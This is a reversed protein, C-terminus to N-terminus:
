RPAVPICDALHRCADEAGAKNFGQLRGRFLWGQDTKLPVIVPSANAYRSPLSAITQKLIQDTAVRSTFAGVQIAWTRNLTAANGSRSGTGLSANRIRSDATPLRVDIDEGTHASIAILGTEIRRTEELDYDGEGIIKKFFSSQLGTNLFAWRQESVHQPERASPASASAAPNIDNLSALAAFVVPKRPPVPVDMAAIRIDRARSFGGDLLKRMHSNRTAASRGGFVVGILRQDNRVASAILNFGSPAVYGTKMGDMGAYTKMLRNHNRYTKGQYQFHKTSFYRYYEPYHRIVYQGMRAIDRATSIQNPHHLGSANVFRTSPMGIARAKRTMLSAFRQESGGIHEAIAAAIDNASKTVLAYIADKVKITEGPELGIKSPVMSAAHHSIRIRDHLRMRGARLEDFVMVLTMVKTLSAPHLRKDAHRAHLVMGTDADIVISAYRPNAEAQTASFGVFGLTMFTILFACLLASRLNQALYIHRHNQFKVSNKM